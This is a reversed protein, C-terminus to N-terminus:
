HASNPFPTMLPPPQPPKCPFPACGRGSCPRYGLEPSYSFRGNNFLMLRLTVASAKREHNAFCNNYIDVPERDYADGFFLTTASETGAEEHRVQRDKTHQVGFRSAEHGANQAPSKCCDM